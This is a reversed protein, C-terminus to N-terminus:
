FLYTLGVRLSRPEGYYSSSSTTQYTKDFLNYLNISATLQKAITYHATLDVLAYSGQIVRPSGPVWSFDSWTRNQWRVGGGVRLGNGVSPMRYTTFLKLTNQPVNTNLLAGNRDQTMNRSFGFAAQWNRAIQGNAEVEFGRTRTGSAARYAQSGDPALVGPLAVAFNDQQIKYVAAAVNLRGGQLEGKMGLEYADGLLPDLSAGTVTKNSQPKFINTFSGYVSWQRDIEHVLAAYPTFRDGWERRETSSVGTAYNSNFKKDGWSTTRGGIILSLPDTIRLRATAYASRTYESYNFDGKVSNDPRGPTSGNWRRIDGIPLIYWLHYSESDQLTHSVTAGLAVDHKRGFATFPGRASLDLSNQNPQGAWRGGYLNIGVGTIKDPSGGAAYGLQEDFRTRDHSYVGKLVWENDLRHELSAFLAVSERSSYAWDAAASDSRKWRTRTGDSYFLPLGGRTHGTAEHEQYTLGFAALTTPTLDAEFVGYLIKKREQLRDIYSGNEQMAAVFRSRLRGGEEIPLSVDAEARRHEWSGAEVRVSGQMERTPRKRILNITASPLGIGNMLGTAGRVVEVRDYLVMDNSQYISSYNSHLHGIGDVLYNEVEFGRSYIPSSDSGLNGAQSLTLGATQRVVDALQILGQDDMQQRTIVSVSQPTERISLPLRTATQMPGGSTYSGSGETVADALANARVTVPQLTAGDTVPRPLAELRYDGSGQSVAHLGSEALLKDFGQQVTHRGKLGPSQRQRLGAADFSLAVGADAAFRALVASLSGAPIDFERTQGKAVPVQGEAAFAQPAPVFGIAMLGFVTGRLVRAPVRRSARSAARPQAQPRNPM